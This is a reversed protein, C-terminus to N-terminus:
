PTTTLEGGNISAMALYLEIDIDDSLYTASGDINGFNAGGPHYSGFHLNHLGVEESGGPEMEPNNGWRVHSIYYNNPFLEVNLPYRRDINKCSYLVVSTASTARGGVMWSRTQYWREGVLFSNSTGDTADKLRVQSGYYLAGDQNMAWNGSSIYEDDSGRSFASGTVGAYSRSTYNENDEFDDFSDPDTPCQYAAVKLQRLEELEPDVYIDPEVQYSGRNGRRATKTESKRQLIEQISSSLGGFEAYPLITVHFSLGNNGEYQNSRESINPRAGEPLQGRASEYNLCALGIQKVNNLCHMRRAAERAAQVAPLLLAVLVGIIAIVVLLEVLTFGYSTRGSNSHQPRRLTSTPSMTKDKM